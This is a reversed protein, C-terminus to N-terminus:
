RQNHYNRFSGTLKEGRKGKLQTILSKLHLIPTYTILIMLKIIELQSTSLCIECLELSITFYSPQIEQNISSTM